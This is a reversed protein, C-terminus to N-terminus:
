HHMTCAELMDVLALLCHRLSNAFSAVREHSCVPLLGWVEARMWRLGPASMYCIAAPSVRVSGLLRWCRQRLARGCASRPRARRLWPCWQSGQRSSLLADQLDPAAPTCCAAALVAAESGVMFGLRVGAAGGPLAAARAARARARRARGRRGAPRLRGDRRRRPQRARHVRPGGPHAHQPLAPGPHGGGLV